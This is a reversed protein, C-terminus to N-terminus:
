RKVPMFVPIGLMEWVEAYVDAPELLTLDVDVTEADASPTPTPGAPTEGCAVFSLVAVAALLACLIKKM